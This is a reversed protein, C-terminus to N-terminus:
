VIGKVASACRDCLEPHEADSGLNEFYNWCRVCKEGNFQTIAIKLNDMEYFTDNAETTITVQAVQLFSKLEDSKQAITNYDSKESLYIEVAAEQSKAIIKENRARELAKLMEKKISVIVGFNKEIEKNNFEEPVERYTHTHVSGENNVFTWIEESTFALIPAILTILTKFIENIATQTSRRKKSDRAEIYLIDKSVDFYLSSLEVACFNLIRRYVLHFEFKEYSAITQNFLQYLKLLIWKDMDALENYPVTDKNEDFDSLNGILFKFSNRIKRYSDAVQKLMDHGIKLDNRYDESTVWLRLIDAGYKKIIDEPPIVNGVSKSMAKGKEDLIFGHTLVTNYPARGKLALAPWLSSQFWGRHQDSGELYLDAPWRLGERYPSELVAFHSVGSDFWVDLIDNEKTFSESGCECRTNEPILEIIDKTYWIDIGEQRALKSFHKLSATNTMNKGCQTCAFSPIPVGWSRQRSLCWDPRQEVMSRFRSEGWSPVWQTEQVVQLAKKRLDHIDIGMFWQETARFILPKKCRWCHPYSHEIQNQSILTNNGKIIELVKDNADWVLVGKMDSYEDTFRGQHDVPCFVDLGHQLGVIYDEAGHGPATHVIGTGQELTVHHGFIIKSEREIFPHQVSLEEIQSRNIPFHAESKLETVAEFQEILGDALLLYESGFKYISYPFDPHFCVALNAPLTWPTTTWIVVHCNSTDVGDLKLTSPSIKFKVFISQSTHMEYEVEAEALATECSPCWYIPKKGKFVYGKEFLEAFKETITAEYDKTMTKYPNKYDAFIGLRKFEDRQINIFGTAYDRCLNRIDIKEMERSKNGLKQTVKLEIPLGHCDWGPIYPTKFGMMSKHKLIVDKLIKNLAHGMHIHGNAYPPGDHLIYLKDDSRESLIKAYIGEKEWRKLIEPERQPLNARMPFDTEPLNVTKSYDM